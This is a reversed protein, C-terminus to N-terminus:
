QCKIAHPDVWGIDSRFHIVIAYSSSETLKNKAFIDCSVNCKPDKGRIETKM